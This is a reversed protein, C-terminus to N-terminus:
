RKATTEQRLQLALGFVLLTVRAIAQVPAPLSAIDFLIRLSDPLQLVQSCSFTDDHRLRGLSPQQGLPLVYNRDGPRAVPHAM